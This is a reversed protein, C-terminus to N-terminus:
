AVTGRCQKGDDKTRHCDILDDGIEISPAFAAHDDLVRDAPSNCSWKVDLHCGCVVDIDKDSNPSCTGMRQSRKGMNVRIENGSSSFLVALVKNDAVPGHLKQGCIVGEIAVRNRM